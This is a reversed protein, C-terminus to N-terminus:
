IGFFSFSNNTQVPNGSASQASGQFDAEIGLIWNPTVQWNYGGQVGGMFGNPHASDAFVLSDNQLGTHDQKGWSWGANGGIYFGTWSYSAVVPPTPPAKVLVDAASAIQTLAVSSVAAMVAISSRVMLLGWSCFIAIRAAALYRQGRVCM